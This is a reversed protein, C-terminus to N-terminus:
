VRRLVSAVHCVPILEQRHAARLRATRSGIHAGSPLAHLPLAPAAHQVRPGSITAKPLQNHWRTDLKRALMRNAYGISLAM